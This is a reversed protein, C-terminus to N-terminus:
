EKPKLGKIVMLYITVTLNKPTGSVGTIVPQLFDGSFLQIDTTDKLISSSTVIIGSWGALDTSGNKRFKITASTGSNIRARVKALKVIGMTTDVFMPNIYDTDGSPTKIEGSIAWTFSYYTTDPVISYGDALSDGTTGVWKPVQGATSTTAKKIRGAVGIAFDNGTIYGHVGSSDALKLDLLQGDTFQKKTTYSTADTSDAKDLPTYGILTALTIDGTGLITNGNV